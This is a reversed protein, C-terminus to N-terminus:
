PSPIYIFWPTTGHICWLFTVCCDYGATLLIGDNLTRTGSYGPGSAMGGGMSEDVEKRVGIWVGWNRCDQWKPRRFQSDFILLIESEWAQEKNARRPQSFGPRSLPVAGRPAPEEGLGRGTGPSPGGKKESNHGGLEMEMEGIIESHGSHTQAVWEHLMEGQPEETRGWVNWGRIGTVDVQFMGWGPGPGREGEQCPWRFWGRQSDAGKRICKEGDRRDGTVVRCTCVTSTPEHEAKEWLLVGQPLPSEGTRNVARAEAGRVAGPVCIGETLISWSHPAKQALEKSVSISLLEKLLRSPHLSLKM